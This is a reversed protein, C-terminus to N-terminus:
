KINGWNDGILVDVLIPADLSDEKEMEEKISRTAKKIIDDKVEFLLEDHVQLIMKVSKPFKKKILEDVRVMAIKMIDAATGQIPANIAMREAEKRIFIIPSKIEPLYRRRGFLTEAFGNERVKEKTDEMYKGMGSFDSFYENYFTEAEEKSCELNKKLSNIGMGYIIGFNIIKARRRMERDVKEFPVNFVESAVKTHIDDGRLFAEKLKKDGSLSAAVRLEIQSYDFSVIKWGKPAVFACRVVKGLSTRTPINQMNPESSSLRGTVTGTQNFVTHIKSEADTLNPLNDIYTSTLKALERHLFIEKVIPHAEKIKELESFRTSLTGQGTRRVGKSSIGMKQFLVESLQKPSNINFEEGALKWIDSQIKELKKHYEVSLKKLYPIDLLFGKESMESLIRILPMEINLFLNELNDKKIAQWLIKKVDEISDTKTFNFIDDLSPNVRRSDLLWFAVKLEEKQEESLLGEGTDTKRKPGTVESPLRALLSRFGNEQFFNKIKEADFDLLWASGSFSFSIPVDGRTEALEKSFFAEEKNEKLLNIIRPTIGAKKFSEEDKSLKKYINDLSGFNQILIEATKEGIGPIGIINDSPDGRLGKFDPLMKPSFGFRKKVAETDYLVAEKIGKKMAYVGVGSQVLQLTDLDGTVIITKLEKEKKVQAVITALVDDAEFGAKEYIPVGFFGLIEKSKGIQPILERDMKPRQAKYKEYAIHRFTPEPLDYCAVLYDPKLESIIKLFMSLFGYLAGTPEGTPSTFSPLAHFARHLIAHADLLVLVKEKKSPMM